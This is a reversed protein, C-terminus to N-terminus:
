LSDKSALWARLRGVDVRVERAVEEITRGRHIQDRLWLRSWFPIGGRKVVYKRVVVLMRRGDELTISEANQQALRLVEPNTYNTVIWWVKRHRIMRGTLNAFDRQRIGPTHWLIAMERYYEPFTRRSTALARLRGSAHGHKLIGLDFDM